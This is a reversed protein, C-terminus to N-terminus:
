QLPVAHGAPGPPQPARARAGPLPGLTARGAPSLARRPGGPRPQPKRVALTVPPQALSEAPVRLEPKATHAVTVTVSESHVDGHCEPQCLAMMHHDIMMIMIIMIM